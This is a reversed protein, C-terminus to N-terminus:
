EEAWGHQALWEDLIMRIQGATTRHEGRAIRRIRDYYDKDIKVTVRDATVRRDSFAQIESARSHVCTDRGTWQNLTTISNTRRSGTKHSASWQTSGTGLRRPRHKSGKSRYSAANRQTSTLACTVHAFTWAISTVASRLLM